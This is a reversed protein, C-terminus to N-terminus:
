WQGSTKREKSQGLWSKVWREPGPSSLFYSFSKLFLRHCFCSNMVQLLFGVKLDDIKENLRTMQSEHSKSVSRQHNCIIAVQTQSIATWRWSFHHYLYKRKKKTVSWVEKNARQYVAIKELLTGDETEKHLQFSLLFVYVSLEYCLM